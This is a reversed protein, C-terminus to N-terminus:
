LQSSMTDVLNRKHCTVMIQPQLLSNGVAFFKNGHSRAGQTDQMCLLKTTQMVHPPTANSVGLINWHTNVSM